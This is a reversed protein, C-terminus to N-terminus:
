RFECRHMNVMIVNFSQGLMNTSYIVPYLFGHITNHIAPLKFPHIVMASVATVACTTVDAVTALQVEIGLHMAIM